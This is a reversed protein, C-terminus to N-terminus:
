CDRQPGRRFKEFIVLASVDKFSNRSAVSAVLKERLLFVLQKLGGVM